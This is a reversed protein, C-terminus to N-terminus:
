RHQGHKGGYAVMLRYGLDVALATAAMVSLTGALIVAVIKLGLLGIFEHHDLVALVAPVFFLLMEAILWHAGGRMSALRVRGSALLVLVLAMGVVGGPVPLSLVCAMAEGALWFFALIAIQLLRNTHLTRRARLAINRYSMTLVKRESIPYIPTVTSHVFHISKMM